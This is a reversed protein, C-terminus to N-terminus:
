IASVSDIFQAAMQITPLRTCACTAAAAAVAAAPAKHGSRVTYIFAAGVVMMMVMMSIVTMVSMITTM